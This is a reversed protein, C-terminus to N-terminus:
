ESSREHKTWSQIEVINGEPDAIYQFTLLGVNPVPHVILDGVPSGGHQFMKQAVSKVDDVAFAIHAFGPTNPAILPHDPMSDYQFIELTPGEPGCGPLRLHIGQIHADPIGTGKDLWPGKLNREPPVPECGFVEQYFGALKKWDKAILNVHAFVINM